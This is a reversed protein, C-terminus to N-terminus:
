WRQEAEWEFWLAGSTGTRALVVYHDSKLITNRDVTADNVTASQGSVKGGNVSVASMQTVGGFKEGAGLVKQTGSEDAVESVSTTTQLASNEQHHYGPEGWDVDLIDTNEADFGVLVLEITANPGYDLIDFERFLSNVEANGPDVRIGYIPEWTDATGSPTVNVVQPKNKNIARPSGLVIAGMSGAELELGSTGGGAVIETWINLNGTLPGRDTDNSSEVIEENRQEGDRTYTQKWSQKGVNYWNYNTQLRTWTTLPEPLVADAALTQTAGNRYQIIDVERETHDSGRQELVWGDTGNFPGFRYIDGTGLPQNLRMAHSMEIVYNVVYTVSEATEIHMSDGATPALRWIDAEDSFRSDTTYQPNIRSGNAFLRLRDGALNYHSGIDFANQTQDAILKDFADSSQVLAQATVRTNAPTNGLTWDEHTM